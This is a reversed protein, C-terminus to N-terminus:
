DHSPSTPAARPAPAETTAAAPAASMARIIEALRDRTTLPLAHGHGALVEVTAGPIVRSYHRAHTLPVVADADGHLVHVPTDIPPWTQPVTRSAALFQHTDNRLGAGRLAVARDAAFALLDARMRADEDLRADEAPSLGRRMDALVATEDRLRRRLQARGLAAVARWVGPVAALARMGRPPMMLHGAVACCLVLGSCRAAHEAAFAYSSPGGGSIGVVVCREIGLQDLLAAYMDAQESPTRAVRLPTRGYGPRSPLVVRHDPSLDEALARAQRWDGPTGHVVLVAPGTAGAAAVEVSGVRTSVVRSELQGSGAVTM